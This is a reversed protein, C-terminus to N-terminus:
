ESRNLALALSRDDGRVISHSVLDDGSVTIERADQPLPLSASVGSGDTTTAAATLQYLLADDEPIVLAQHQWRWVSPEPPSLAARTERDDLMRIHLTRIDGSLARRQNSGLTERIKGYTIEVSGGAPLGTTEVIMSPCPPLTLTFGDPSASALLRLDVSRNGTQDLVLCLAKERSVIIADEPESKELSVEGGILPIFAMGEGFAAARSALEIVPMGDAVGLRLRSSLLALSPVDPKKEAPVNAASLLQKLEGYPLRVEADDLSQASLPLMACLALVSLVADRFKSNMHRFIGPDKSLLIGSTHFERSNTRVRRAQQLPKRINQQLCFHM